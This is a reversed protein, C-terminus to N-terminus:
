IPRKGYYQYYNVKLNGNFLKRKKHAKMGFDREFTNIATIIYKSWTEEKGYVEGLKSHISEIKKLDGIRDGYPPNTILIGYECSPKKLNNVDSVFFKICDDVGAEIANEKAITIAKQSVDSAYIEIKQEFDIKKRSEIKEKKWFEESVIPWRQSAFTRNLGPAINKGILAAEIPITGSGCM